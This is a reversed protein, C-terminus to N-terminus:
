DGLARGINARLESAIADDDTGYIRLAEEAKALEGGLLDSRSTLTNQARTTEAELQEYLSMAEQSPWGSAMEQRGAITLNVVEGFKVECRVGPWEVVSLDFVNGEYAADFMDPEEGTREKVAAVCASINEADDASAAQSFFILGASVIILLKM